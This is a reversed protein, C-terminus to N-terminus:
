KYNTFNALATVYVDGDKTTGEYQRVRVKIYRTPTELLAVNTGNATHSIVSAFKQAGSSNVILLDTDFWTTGDDSTYVDCVQTGAAYNSTVFTIAIKDAWQVDLTASDFSGAPTTETTTDTDVVQGFNEYGYTHLRNKSQAEAVISGFVCVMVFVVFAVVAIAGWKKNM